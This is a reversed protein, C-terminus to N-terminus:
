PSTQNSSRKLFRGIQSTSITKVIKRKILEKKLLEESWKSFPLGLKEPDSTALGVIKEITKDTFKSPTGPRAADQLISLLFSRYEQKKIEKLTYWELWKERDEKSKNWRQIWRNLTTSSMQITRLIESKKKSEYHFLLIVEGRKILSGPIERKRRLDELLEREINNKNSM